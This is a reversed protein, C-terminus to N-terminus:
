IVDAFSDESRAFVWLGALLLGVAVAASVAFALPDVPVGLISWRLAGIIGVAPNVAFVLRWSEPLLTAPYIVPTLLLMTQMAFPMMYGVDRFRVNISATILGVGLAVAVALILIVPALLIQPTPLIGYYALGAALLVIGFFTSILSSAMASLPIALRPVYVRKVLDQDALLSTTMAQASRSIFNWPILGCLVFLPYPVGQSPVGVVKGFVLSFTGLAVLPQAFAWLLGFYTQRHHAKFSRWVLLLVVERFAWL